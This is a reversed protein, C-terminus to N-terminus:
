NFDPDFVFNTPFDGGEAEQPRWYEIGGTSEEGESETGKDSKSGIIDELSSGTELEIQETCPAFLQEVSPILPTERRRGQYTYSYQSYICSQPSHNVIAWFNSQIVTVIFHKPYDSQQNVVFLTLIKLVWYYKEVYESIYRINDIETTYDEGDCFKRQATAILQDFQALGTVVRQIHDKTSPTVIVISTSHQLGFHPGFADLDEFIASHYFISRTLALADNIKLIIEEIPDILSFSASSYQYLETIQQVMEEADPTRAKTPIPLVPLLKNLAALFNRQHRHDAESVWKESHQQSTSM